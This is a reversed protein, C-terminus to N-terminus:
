EHVEFHGTMVLAREVVDEVTLYYTRELPASTPAPANPLTLRAPRSRWGGADIAEAASAIIEGGLGCCSWDGDVVLLRGTRRVSDAVITTDLPNLVRLDIVDCEVGRSALQSAADRCLLTSYSAGVLTLDGGSRVLRPGERELALERVPELDEELGYLWRDDIYLVPDPSLVSAVLLDRADSPTAPMVVRLGPVHAFWSHLAQSHQAGQEGGRNIIARVTLPASVQGGFMASWKAAQNVIPDVALLMFDVRPHVVIPRYGSLAAGLAAGTCALESVPTDIVRAAGFQKDLDTMSNGVYWPSWLGQGIAFVNPYRELLYAFAERIAVGYSTM